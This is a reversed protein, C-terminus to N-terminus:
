FTSLDIYQHWIKKMRRASEFRNKGGERERSKLCWHDYENSYIHAHKEREGERRKEGTLRSKIHNPHIFVKKFTRVRWPSDDGLSSDFHHHHRTVCTNGTSQSDTERERVGCFEFWEFLVENWTIKGGLTEGHDILKLFFFLIAIYCSLPQDIRHHKTGWQECRMQAFQPMVNERIAVKISPVSVVPVIRSPHLHPSKTEEGGWNQDTWGIAWWLCWSFRRWHM